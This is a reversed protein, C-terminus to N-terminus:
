AKVTIDVVTADGSFKFYDILSGYVAGGVWSLSSKTEVVTGSANKGSLVNKTIEGALVSAGGAQLM